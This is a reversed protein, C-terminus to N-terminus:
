ESIGDGYSAPPSNILRPQSHNLLDAGLILFLVFFHGFGKPPKPLCYLHQQYLQASPMKQMSKM